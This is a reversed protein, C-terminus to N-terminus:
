PRCQQEGGAIAELRLRNKCRGGGLGQNAHDPEEAGMPVTQMGIRLFLMGVVIAVIAVAVELIKRDIFDSIIFM